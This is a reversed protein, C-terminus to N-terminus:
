LVYQELKVGRTIVVRSGGVVRGRRGLESSPAALRVKRCPM